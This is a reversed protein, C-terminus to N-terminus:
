SIRLEEVNVVTKKYTPLYEVVAYRAHAGLIDVVHSQLEPNVKIYGRKVNVYVNERGLSKLLKRVTDYFRGKRPVVVLSKLTGESTVAEYPKRTRSAVRLLREKYQVGYKVIASCFHVNLNEVLSQLARISRLATEYSGKVSFSRRDSPTFGRLLLQSANTETIELENLNLFLAGVAELEVGIRVIKEYEGPISPIEAGAAIGVKLCKEVIRVDDVEFLHIRIEDLGSRKLEQLIGENLRPSPPLYLHTHFDEGFVDKLTRIYSILRRPVLLPNGGTIAAGLAGMSLAEEALAAKGGVPRENAYIVDKGKRAYSL